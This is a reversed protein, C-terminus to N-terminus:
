LDSARRANKTITDTFRSQSDLRARVRVVFVEHRGVKGFLLKGMM